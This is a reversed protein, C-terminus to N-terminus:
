TRTAGAAKSSRPSQERQKDALLEPGDLLERGDIEQLLQLEVRFGGPLRPATNAPPSVITKFPIEKRAPDQPDVCAGSLPGSRGRKATRASSSYNQRSPWPGGEPQSASLRLRIPTVAALEGSDGERQGRDADPQRPLPRPSPRCRPVGGEGPGREAWM